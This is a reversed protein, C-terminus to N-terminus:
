EWLVLFKRAEIAERSEPARRVVDSLYKRAVDRYGSRHAVIGFRLMAVISGPEHALYDRYRRGAEQFRGLRELVVGAYLQADPSSPNAKLARDLWRAAAELDKARDAVLARHYAATALLEDPIEKAALAELEAAAEALRDLRILAVARNLRLRPEDPEAAIAHDFEELAGNADGEMLKAIGRLNEASGGSMGTLSRLAREPARHALYWTAASCSEGAPQAGAPAAALGSLALLLSLFLTV